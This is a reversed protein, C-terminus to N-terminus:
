PAITGRSHPAASVRPNSQPPQCLGVADLTDRAADIAALREHEPLDRFEGNALPGVRDAVLEAVQESVRRFQRGHLTNNFREAVVDTTNSDVTGAVADTGLWM